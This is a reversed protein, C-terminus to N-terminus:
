KISRSGLRSAGDHGVSRLSSGWRKRWDPEPQQQTCPLARSSFPAIQFLSVYKLYLGSGAQHLRLTALPLPITALCNRFSAPPLLTPRRVPIGRVSLYLAPLHPPPFGPRTRLVPCLGRDMTSVETYRVITRQFYGLNVGPPGSCRTIVATHFSRFLSPRYGLNGRRQNLITDQGGALWVRRPSSVVFSPIRRCKFYRTLLGYPASITYHSDASPPLGPFRATFVVSSEGRHLSSRHWRGFPLPLHSHYTPPIELTSISACQTTNDLLGVPCIRRLRYREQSPCCPIHPCTHVQICL